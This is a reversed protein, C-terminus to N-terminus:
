SRTTTPHTSEVIPQFEEGSCPNFNDPWCGSLSCLLRFDLPAPQPNLREVKVEAHCEFLVHLWDHTLYRPCFGVLTRVGPFTDGTRLALANPDYGNQLDWMVFLRENERLQEIRKASEEGFHTIGHVFFHVRYSGDDAPQPCPFVEFTDTARRGGTRALVVLPDHESRPLNLWEVFEFYDERGLSPARNQFLPFLEDSEYIRDYAPFMPLPPLGCNESARHAGRTYVFEYKNDNLTLRGIPFWSRTQPDRWALFLTKM